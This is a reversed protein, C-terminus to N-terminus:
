LFLFHVNSLMPLRQYLTSKMAKDSYEFIKEVQKRLCITLHLNDDVNWEITQDFIMDGAIDKWIGEIESREPLNDLIGFRKLDFEKLIDFEDGEQQTDLLYEKTAQKVEEKLRDRSMSSTFRIRILPLGSENFIRNKKIANAAGQQEDQYQSDKEICLLPLYTTNSVIAFDVHAKFMYDIVDQELLPRVKDVDIISKLDMNPYVMQQPFLEILAQYLLIESEHFFIPRYYRRNSARIVQREVQPDIWNSVLPYIVSNELQYGGNKDVEVLELDLLTQINKKYFYDVKLKLSSCILEDTVTEIRAMKYIAFLMKRQLKNIKHFYREQLEKPRRKEKEMLEEVQQINHNIHKDEPALQYGKKLISLAKEYDKDVKYIIVSLNNLVSVNDPSEELLKGYLEKAKKYNGNANLVYAVYFTASEDATKRQEKTLWESYIRYILRHGRNDLDFLSKIIFEPHGWDMLGILNEKKELAELFDLLLEGKFYKGNELFTVIVDQYIPISDKRINRILKRLASGDRTGRYYEWLRSLFPNPLYDLMKKMNEEMRDDKNLMLMNILKFYDIIYQDIISEKSSNEIEAIKELYNIVVDFAWGYFTGLELGTKWEEELNMELKFHVDENLSRFTYRHFLLIDGDTLCGTVNKLFIVLVSTFMLIHYPVSDEFEKGLLNELKGHNAVALAEQYRNRVALLYVIRLTAHLFTYSGCEKIMESPSLSLFREKSYTLLEDHAGDILQDHQIGETNPILFRHYLESLTKPENDLDINKWLVQIKKM